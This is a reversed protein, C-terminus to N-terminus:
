KLEGLWNLVVNIGLPRSAQSKQIMLFRGDPAVDYDRRNVRCLYKGEFLEEIKTVRFEPQKEIIAAIMKDGSRYFLEKGDRSWVPQFGGETSIMTKVGPGPYQEVYVEWRGSEDSAYAIWRGDPSWVGHRQNHNRQVFPRSKSMQSQKDLLVVYIDDDWMPHKPDSWAVLVESGDPSCAVPVGPPNEFTALLEPEGSGPVFQRFIQPRGTRYSGYM